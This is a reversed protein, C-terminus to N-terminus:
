AGEKWQPCSWDDANGKDDAFCAIRHRHGELERRVRAEAKLDRITIDDWARDLRRGNSYRAYGYVALGVIVFALGLVLWTALPTWPEVVKM